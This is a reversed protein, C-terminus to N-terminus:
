KHCAIYKRIYYNETSKPAPYIAVVKKLNTNFYLFTIVKLLKISYKM